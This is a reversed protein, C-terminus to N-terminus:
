WWGLAPDSTFGQVELDLIYYTPTSILKKAKGIQLMVLLIKRTHTLSSLVVVDYTHPARPSIHLTFVNKWDRQKNEKLALSKEAGEYHAVQDPSGYVEPAPLPDTQRLSLIIPLPFRFLIPSFFVQGLAVFRTHSRPNFDLSRSYLPLVPFLVYFWYCRKRHCSIVCRVSRGVCLAFTYNLVLRYASL